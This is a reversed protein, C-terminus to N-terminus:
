IASAAAAAPLAFLSVVDAWTPAQLAMHAVVAATAPSPLLDATTAAAADARGYIEQMSTLLSPHLTSPEAEYLYMVAAWVAVALFPYVQRFTVAAFPPVGHAAGARFGAVLVRSLLYLLIQYHLHTYRSWVAAGGVAGAIAALWGPPTPPPAGPPGRVWAAHALRLGGLTLKYLAAFYALGRGHEFAMAAVRTLLAVVGRAGWAVKGFLLTMVATHPARVRIGYAAGLRAARLAVAVVHRVGAMGVATAM